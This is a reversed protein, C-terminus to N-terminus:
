VHENVKMCKQGITGSLKPFTGPPLYFWTTDWFSMDWFLVMGYGLIGLQCKGKSYTCMLIYTNNHTYVCTHTHTYIYICMYIYM